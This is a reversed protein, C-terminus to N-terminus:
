KNSVRRNRLIIGHRGTIIDLNFYAEIFLFAVELHDQGLAPCRWGAIGPVRDHKAENVVPLPVWVRQTAKKPGESNGSM